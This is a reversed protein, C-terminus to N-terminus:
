GPPRRALVAGVVEGALRAGDPTVGLLSVRVSPGPADFASGPGVLVGRRRLAAVATTEDDVPLLLHPAARDAVPLGAAGRFAASAERLRGRLEDRLVDLAGSALLHGWSRQWTPSPATAWLARHRAVDPEALRVWGLRSGPGALKHLSGVVHTRAPPSGPDGPEGPDTCWAFATDWVARGHEPLAAAVRAAADRGLDLGDPNRRVPTVWVADAGRVATPLDAWAARVVVAGRAELARPVDAFTPREVVVVRADALLAAAAVRVGGTIILEEAPLGTRRALQERLLPDGFRDPAQAPTIEHAARELATRWAAAPASGWSPPVGTLDVARATGPSGM